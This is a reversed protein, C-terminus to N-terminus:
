FLSGTKTQWFYCVLGLVFFLMAWEYFGAALAGLWNVPLFLDLSAALLAPWLGLLRFILLFILVSTLASLIVSVFVPLNYNFGFAKFIWSYIVPTLSNGTNAIQGQSSIEMSSLFINQQSEVSFKGSLAMNRALNLNRYGLWPSQGKYFYPAIRLLSLLCIALAVLSVIRTSKHREM